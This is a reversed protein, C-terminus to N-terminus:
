QEPFFVFTWRSGERFFVIKFGQSIPLVIVGLAASVSHFFFLVVRKPQPLPLFNQNLGYSTAPEGLFIWEGSGPCCLRGLASASGLCCLVGRSGVVLHALM